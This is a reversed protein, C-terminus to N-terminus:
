MHRDNSEDLGDYEYGSIPVIMRRWQLMHWTLHVRIARSLVMGLMTRETHSTRFDVAGHAYM